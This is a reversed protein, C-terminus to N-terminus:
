HHTNDNTEDEILNAREFDNIKYVALECIAQWSLDSNDERKEFLLSLAHYIYKSKNKIGEIFRVGCKENMDEDKMLAKCWNYTFVIHRFKVIEEYIIDRVDKEREEETNPLHSGFVKRAETSHFYTQHKFPDPQHLSQHNSVSHTSPSLEVQSSSAMPSNAQPHSSLDPSNAQSLSAAPSLNDQPHPSLDQSIVQSTSEQLVLDTVFHYWQSKSATAPEDAETVFFCTFNLQSKSFGLNRKRNKRLQRKTFYVGHNNINNDETVDLEKIIITTFWKLKLNKILENSLESEQM